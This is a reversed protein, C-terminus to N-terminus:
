EPAMDAILGSASRFAHATFTSRDLTAGNTATADGAYENPALPAAVAPARAMNEVPEPVVRLTWGTAKVLTAWVDYCRRRGLIRSLFAMVTQKIVQSGFEFQPGDGCDNGSATNYVVAGVM